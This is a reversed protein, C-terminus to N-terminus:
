AQLLRTRSVLCISFKRSSTRMKSSAPVYTFPHLMFASLIQLTVGFEGLTDRDQKVKTLEEQLGKFQTELSSVPNATKYPRTSCLTRGKM